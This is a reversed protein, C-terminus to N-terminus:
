FLLSLEDQIFERIQENQYNLFAKLITKAESCNYEHAIDAVGTLAAMKVFDSKDNLAEKLLDLNEQLNLYALGSVASHRILENQDKLMEKLKLLLDPKNKDVYARVAIGRMLEDNCSFLLGLDASSMLYYSDVLKSTYESKDKIDNKIPNTAFLCESENEKLFKIDKKVKNM